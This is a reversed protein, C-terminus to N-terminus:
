NEAAISPMLEEPAATPELSPLYSKVRETTEHVGVARGEKIEWLSVIPFFKTFLMYALIFGAFCGVMLSWEIWTPQYFNNAVPVRPNVLTPIVITFRELWMGIIISSSALVVGTITRLKKIALIPFPIIFNFVIMAWFYAAYPGFFKANFITMEHPESGYFVTLHEALTFYAWLLTMTLLLVALNNFHIRRIYNELHYVKRIVAMAIIIAAIGSFIAGVVFYPGFITSHWMPQITMSFVWSVVTHVSIAIPVVLVAMISIAIHLGRKQSESGTWGFSLMKYLLKRKKLHDRLYAVDPILPLLLYVTSGVLYTSISIVDWLLPSRLRGHIFVYLM